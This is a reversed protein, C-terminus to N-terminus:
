VGVAHFGGDVHLMEGTTAPFYDSFLAVCARAVPEPDKVDWGLPARSAWVEEFQDFGPIAEFYRLLSADGRRPGAFNAFIAAAFEPPGWFPSMDLFAPALGPAVLVNDPSLDGHILQCELTAVPKRLAYLEDVLPRLEPQIGDPKDGWCKRHAFGWDTRNDDMLPHKPISKLARHLAFIAQICQPIDAPKAAQGEVFTAPIACM